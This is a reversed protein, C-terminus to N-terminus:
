LRVRLGPHVGNVEVLRSALEVDVDCALIVM